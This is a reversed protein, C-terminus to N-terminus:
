GKRAKHLEQVAIESKIEIWVMTDAGLAHLSCSGVLGFPESLIKPLTM